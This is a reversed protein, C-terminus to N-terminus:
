KTLKFKKKLWTDNELKQVELYLLETGIRVDGKLLAILEECDHPYVWVSDQLRVFGFNIISERIRNRQPRKKESVDFIVLRWKQDWKKVEKKQQGSKKKLYYLRGKDTLTVQLAGGKTFVRVLGKKELKGVVGDYYARSQYRRGIKQLTGFVRIANPAIMLLPLTGALVIVGLLFLQISLRGENKSKSDEQLKKTKEKM